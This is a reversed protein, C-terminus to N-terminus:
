NNKYQHPLFYLYRALTTMVDYSHILNCDSMWEWSGWAVAIDSRDDRGVDISQGVTTRM